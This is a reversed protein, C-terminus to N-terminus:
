TLCTDEGDARAQGGFPRGVKQVSFLDRAPSAELTKILIRAQLANFRLSRPRRPESSAAASTSPPTIGRCLGEDMGDLHDAHSYGQDDTLTANNFLREEFADFADGPTCDYPDFDFKSETGADRGDDRTRDRGEKEATPSM